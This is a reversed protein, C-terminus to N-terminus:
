FTVESFKFLPEIADWYIAGGKVDAKNNIFRNGRSLKLQCNLIDFDCTYYIAGAMGSNSESNKYIINQASNNRFLSGSIM